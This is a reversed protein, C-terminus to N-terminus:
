LLTLIRRTERRGASEGPSAKAEAAKLHQEAEDLAERPILKGWVGILNAYAILNTDVNRDRKSWNSDLTQNYAQFFAEM